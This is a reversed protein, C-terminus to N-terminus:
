ASEKTAANFNTRGAFPHVEIGGVSKAMVGFQAFFYPIIVPGREVFIRQIEKYAAKREGEDLSLGAIEIQQDLEEDSFHSENWAGGTKYGIDLYFQPVARSGWPTIGLDVELWGNDGYYVAEEQPELTVNIGAEGWQAALAQALAVRDPLNPVYLTMTLGTPYGAEALLTKAAEVNRAPPMFEDTYYSAFLPGIPTDLGLAGFGYQTREFLEQRDTALKFAQRVNEDNGPARDSRLRVVDHGNTPIDISSFETDSELQQFTPTDMRLVVDVDGGRLANVSAGVDPFYVFELGDVGPEGGWYDANAEFVARDAALYETLRFPGTGNFKSGIDGADAKLIVAHNDSLDYMFDPNPETLTFILSNGEGAEISDITKYLDGTPTDAGANRLRDFTWIIDNLTLDSGDHFKVGEEIQLTYTTGDESPSWGKALRPVLAAQADTDVLYDYVANLFAIETDASALLPDLKSPAGGWAIRLLKIQALEETATQTETASEIPRCSVVAFGAAGAVLVKLFVRRSVDLSAFDLNHPNLAPLARRRPYQM